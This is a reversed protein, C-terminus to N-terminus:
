LLINDHFDAWRLDLSDVGFPDYDFLSYRSLWFGFCKHCLIHQLTKTTGSPNSLWYGDGSEIRDGGCIHGKCLTTRNPLMERKYFTLSNAM